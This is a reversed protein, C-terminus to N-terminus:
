RNGATTRQRQSQRKRQSQSQSEVASRSASRDTLSDSMQRQAVRQGWRKANVAKAGASRADVIKSQRVKLADAIPDNWVRDAVEFLASVAPRAREWDERSMRTIQALAADDAPLPGNSWNDIQLLMYAGLQETTLRATKVLFDSYYVPMWVSAHAM